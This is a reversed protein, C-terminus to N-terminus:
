IADTVVIFINLNVFYALIEFPIAFKTDSFPRVISSQIIHLCLHKNLIKLRLFISIITCKLGQSSLTKEKVQM